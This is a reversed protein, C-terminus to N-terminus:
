QEGAFLELYSALVDHGNGGNDVRRRLFKAIEEQDRAAIQGVKIASIMELTEAEDFTDFVAGSDDFFTKNRHLYRPNIVSIGRRLADFGISSANGFIKLSSSERPNRNSAKGM